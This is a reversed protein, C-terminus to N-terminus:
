LPGRSGVKLTQDFDILYCSLYEQYLCIDCPCINGPCIDSWCNANTLSPGLFRGKFNPWFRTLLQQSIRSISLHLWSLHLSSLHGRPPGYCRVPVPISIYLNNGSEIYALNAMKLSNRDTPTPRYYVSILALWSRQAQCFKGGDLTFEAM